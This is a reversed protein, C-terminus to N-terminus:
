HFWWSEIKTSSHEGWKNILNCLVKPTSRFERFGHQSSALKQNSELLCTLKNKVIGELLKRMTSLLTIPRYKQPDSSSQSTKPIPIVIGTKWVSPFLRLMICVSFLKKLLRSCVANNKKYFENPIKDWGPAKRTQSTQIRSSVENESVMQSLYDETSDTTTEIDVSLAALDEESQAGIPLAKPFM